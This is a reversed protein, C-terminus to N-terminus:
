RNGKEAYSFTPFVQTIDYIEQASTKDTHVTFVTAGIPIDRAWANVGSTRGYSLLVDEGTGYKQATPYSLVFSNNHDHGVSILTTSPNEAIIQMLGDDWKPAYVGEQKVFQVSQYKEPLFGSQEVHALTDSYANFSPVGYENVEGKTEVLERYAYNPVHMFIASRIGQKSYKEVKSEYWQTQKQTLGVYGQDSYGDAGSTNGAPDVYFKGHTDMHFIAFVVQGAKDEMEIVYNGVGMADPDSLEEESRALLSYEYGTLLNFLEENGRTNESYFAEGASADLTQLCAPAYESLLNKKGEKGIWVEGDDTKIHEGDHNGFTYAWYIQREEFINALALLAKDRGPPSGATVDGTVEVLDPKVTDLAEEVWKFTQKDKNYSGNTTLHLDTLQMILFTGDDHVILSTRKEVNGEKKTSDYCGALIATLAVTLALALVVCVVIAKKMDEEGQGGASQLFASM